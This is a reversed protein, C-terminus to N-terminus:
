SFRNPGDSEVQPLLYPGCIGLYITRARGRQSNTSDVQFLYKLIEDRVGQLVSSILLRDDVDFTAFTPIVPLHADGVISDSYM